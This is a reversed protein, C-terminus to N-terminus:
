ESGADPLDVRRPAFHLSSRKRDRALYLLIVLLIPFIQLKFRVAGGLNQFSIFAYLASWLCLFLVGAGILPERLERWKTRRIARWLLVLMVLNEAGALLGFTNRIEGPLPRFLATFAGYPIFWLLGLPTRPIQSINEATTGLVSVRGDGATLLDLVADVQFTAQFKAAAAGIGIAALALVTIKVFRGRATFYVLGVAPLLMLPGLWLRIYMSVLVGVAVPIFYRSENRQYWGVMGYVYMAVCLLIVPDKGIISSWFLVTPFLAITYLLRRNERGMAMVVARYFVYIGLLGAMAFSIKLEHYSHPLIRYHIWSLLFINSTGQGLAFPGPYDRAPGVEAYYGYADLSDYFSEYFLMFGLALAVKVAWLILLDKKDAASVPWLLIGFGLVAAWVVGWLYDSQLDMSPINHGLAVVGNLLFPMGMACLLACFIGLAYIGLIARNQIPNQM